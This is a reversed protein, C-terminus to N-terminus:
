SCQSSKIGLVWEAVCRSVDLELPDGRRAEVPVPVCVICLYVRLYGYVYFSFRFQCLCVSTLQGEGTCTSSILSRERSAM